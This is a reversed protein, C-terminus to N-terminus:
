VFNIRADNLKGYSKVEFDKELQGSNLASQFYDAFKEKTIQQRGLAPAMLESYRMQINRRQPQRNELAPFEKDV